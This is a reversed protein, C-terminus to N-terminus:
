KTLILKGLQTIQLRYDVGNHHIIVLSSEGFLTSSEIRRITGNLASHHPPPPTKM